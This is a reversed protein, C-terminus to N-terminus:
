VRLNKGDGKVPRSRCCGTSRSHHDDAAALSTPRLRLRTLGARFSSAPPWAVGIIASAYSAELGGLKECQKCADSDPPRRAMRGDPAHWADPCHRAALARCEATKPARRPSSNGSSRRRRCSRRAVISAAIFRSSALARATASASRCRRSSASAWRCRAPVLRRPRAGPGITSVGRVLRLGVEGFGLQRDHPGIVLLSIATAIGLGADIALALDDQRAVHRRLAVVFLLGLRHRLGSTALQVLGPNCRSRILGSLPRQDRRRQIRAVETPGRHIGLTSRLRSPACPM